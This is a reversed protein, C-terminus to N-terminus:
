AKRHLKKDDDDDNDDPKVKSRKRKQNIRIACTLIWIVALLLTILWPYTVGVYVFTFLFLPQIIRVILLQFFEPLIGVRMLAYTMVEACVKAIYGLFLFGALAFNDAGHIVPATDRNKKLNNICNNINTPNTTRYSLVISSEPIDPRRKAISSSVFFYDTISFKQLNSGGEESETLESVLSDLKQRLLNTSDTISTPIIYYIILVEVIGTYMVDILLNLMFAAVWTWQWKSDKGKAYLIGAYVFYFNILIV